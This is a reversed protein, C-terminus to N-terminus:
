GTSFILPFNYLPQFEMPTHWFKLFFRSNELPLPILTFFISFKAHPTTTSKLMPAVIKEPFAWEEALQSIQGYRYNYWM